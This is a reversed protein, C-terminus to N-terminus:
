NMVSIISAYQSWVQDNLYYPYAAQTVSIYALPCNYFTNDSIIPPWDSYINMDELSQCRRFAEDDISTITSPLTLRNLNDCDEFAGINISVVGGMTLDRLITCGSFAHYGINTFKAPIIILALHTNSAFMYSPIQNGSLSFSVRYRTNAEANFTIDQGNFELVDGDVWVNQVVGGRDLALRYTGATQFYYEAEILDACDTSDTEIIDGRRYEVPSVDTWTVGNDESKQRILLAYKNGNVCVYKGSDAWRYITSVEVVEEVCVYGDEVWRYTPDYPPTYGCDPDHDKRTTVAGGDGEVSYELPWKPVFNTQGTHKVWKQYLWVSLYSNDDGEEGGPDPDGDGSPESSNNNDEVEDKYAEATTALDNLYIELPEGFDIIAERMDIPIGDVKVKGTSEWVKGDNYSIEEVSVVSGDITHSTWQYAVSYGCDRSNIEILNGTMYELPIVDSWTTGGDLSVQKKLRQYKNYQVVTAM